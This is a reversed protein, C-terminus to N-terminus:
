GISFILLGVIIALVVGWFGMGSPQPVPVYQVQPTPAIQPQDAFHRGCKPCNIASYSVLNGCDPCVFLKPNQNQDQNINNTMYEGMKIVIYNEFIFIL